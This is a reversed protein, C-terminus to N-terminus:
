EARSLAVVEHQTYTVVVYDGGKPVAYMQSEAVRVSFRRGRPGEMTVVRKLKDLTIVKCVGTIIHEIGGAKTTVADSMYPVEIEEATPKRLNIALSAEVQMTVRDGARVYEFSTVDESVSFTRYLPSISDGESTEIAGEIETVLIERNDHDVHLVEVLIPTVATSELVGYLTVPLGMAATLILTALYRLSNRNKKM